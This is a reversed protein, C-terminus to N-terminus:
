EEYRKVGEHRKPPVSNIRVAKLRVIDDSDYLTLTINVDCQLASRSSECWRSSTQARSLKLTCREGIRRTKLSELSSSM